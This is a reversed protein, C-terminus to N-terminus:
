KVKVVTVTIEVFLVEPFMSVMLNVAICSAPTFVRFIACEITAQQADSCILIPLKTMSFGMFFLKM